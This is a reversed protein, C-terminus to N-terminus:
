YGSFAWDKYLAYDLVSVIFKVVPLCDLSYILMEDIVRGAEM